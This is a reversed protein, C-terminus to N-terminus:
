FIVRTKSIIEERFASRSYGERFSLIGKLDVINKSELQDLNSRM